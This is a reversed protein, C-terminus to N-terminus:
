EIGLRESVSEGSVDGDAYERWEALFTPVANDGGRLTQVFNRLTVRFKFDGCTMFQFPESAANHWIDLLKALKPTGWDGQETESEWVVKLFNSGLNQMINGDRRPILIDVIKNTFNMEDRINLIPPTFVDEYLLMYDYYVYGTGTTTSDPYDDAYLRIEDIDHSQDVIEGEVIKWTTSFQPEDTGLIFETEGDSFHLQVRAGLKGSTKFRIVYKPYTGTTVNVTKPFYVWEDTPVTMKGTIELMRNEQVTFTVDTLPTGSNVAAGYDSTDNCDECLGHNYTVTRTM